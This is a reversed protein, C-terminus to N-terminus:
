QYQEHYEHRLAERTRDFRQNVPLPRPSLMCGARVASLAGSNSAILTEFAKPLKLASVLTEKWMLSPSNTETTPGFPAPFVVSTLTTDPKSRGVAPSTRKRPRSIAPTPGTSSARRPM